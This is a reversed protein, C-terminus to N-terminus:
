WVDQRGAGGERRGEVGDLGQSQQLGQQESTWPVRWFGLVLWGKLCWGLDVGLRRRM